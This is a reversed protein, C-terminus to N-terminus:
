GASPRRPTVTALAKRQMVNVVRLRIPLSTAWQGALRYGHRVMGNQIFTQLSETRSNKLETDDSDDHQQQALPQGAQCNTTDRAASIM